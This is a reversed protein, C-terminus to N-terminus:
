QLTQNGDPKQPKMLASQMFRQFEANGEIAAGVKPIIASDRFLWIIEACLELARDQVESPFAWERDPSDTLNLASIVGCMGPMLFKDEVHKRLADPQTLALRKAADERLRVAKEEEDTYHFRAWCPGHAPVTTGIERGDVTQKKSRMVYGRKNKKGPEVFWAAQVLGSSILADKSGELLYGWHTDSRTVGPAVTITDDIM